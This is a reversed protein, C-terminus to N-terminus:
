QLTNKEWMLKMVASFTEEKVDRRTGVFRLKKIVTSKEDQIGAYVTGVPKAQTGGSPGATGTVAIRYHFDGLGCLGEMMKLCTQRSVAGWREIVGVPVNLLRVKSENSYAVVSLQFFKSSGPLDTLRDSILGGTLSEAVALSRGQEILHSCVWDSLLDAGFGYTYRSLVKTIKRHAIDHERLGAGADYVFVDVGYESTRTDVTVRKLGKSASRLLEQIKRHSIGATRIPNERM